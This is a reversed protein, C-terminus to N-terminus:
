GSLKSVFLWFSNCRIESLPLQLKSLARHRIVGYIISLREILDILVQYMVFM